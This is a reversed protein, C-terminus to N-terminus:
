EKWGLTQFGDELGLDNFKKQARFRLEGSPQAGNESLGGGFEAMRSIATGM